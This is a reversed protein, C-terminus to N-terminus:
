PLRVPHFVLCFLPAIKKLPVVQSPQRIVTMVNKDISLRIRAPLEEMVTGAVADPAPPLVSTFVVADIDVGEFLTSEAFVTLM